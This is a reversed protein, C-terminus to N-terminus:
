RHGNPMLAAVMKHHVAVSRRVIEVVQDSPLEEIDPPWGESRMELVRERRARDAARQEQAVQLREAKRARADWIEGQIQQWIYYGAGGILAIMVLFVVMLQAIEDDDLNPWGMGAALIGTM